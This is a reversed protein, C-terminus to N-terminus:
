ISKKSKKYFEKLALQIIKKVPVGSKKAAKLCDSYEPQINVEEGEFSSIKIAVEQGLVNIKKIERALVHREVPYYRIGISST